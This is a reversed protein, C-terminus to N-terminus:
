KSAEARKRVWANLLTALLLMAGLFFKFWDPNWQAYVIGNSTMGFIFAGVASGIASGYGGTMLCGGIVAAIIYLFENGVGEGSQVVDFSFLIHQGSIWACLAVGMYLGIRTKVVPVGVARAADAGGGVAFIWNGARTRLLIWTAVAVLALWWLVTIQLTVSGIEWKSAFLARASPFGEMDAISKTSVTGSILKTFGLNLGTLMLFTGLTIIFSPLKTRTLMFGNFFGIALTVLLSVGVGVWVNATMQYSFMSSVLASTTVMVGASLDFEGGIMLMAVPVAMIGITSASYLITSLSSAQLFTPAAISFFVFVAVAGVVAGLEPRGLLRRVLSTPALREDVATAATM